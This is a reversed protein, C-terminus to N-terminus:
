FGLGSIFINDKRSMIIMQATIGIKLPILNIISRNVVTRGTSAQQSQSAIIGLKLTPQRGVQNKGSYCGFLLAQETRIVKSRM